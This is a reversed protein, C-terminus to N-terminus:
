GASLGAKTPMIGSGKGTKSSKSSKTETTPISGEIGSYVGSVKTGLTSITGLSVVVFLALMVAYETATPGAESVLFSRIRKNLAKM